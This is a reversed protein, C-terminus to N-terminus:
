RLANINPVHGGASTSLVAVVVGGCRSPLGFVPRRGRVVNGRLGLSVVSLLAGPLDLAAAHSKGARMLLVPVRLSVTGGYRMHDVTVQGLKSTSGLVSISSLMRGIGIVQGSGRFAPRWLRNFGPMMVREDDSPLEATTADGAVQCALSIWSNTYSSLDTQYHQHLYTAPSWHRTGAAPDSM